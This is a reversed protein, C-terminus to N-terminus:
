EIKNEKPVASSIDLIKAACKNECQKVSVDKNYISIDGPKGCIDCLMEEKFYNLPHSYADIWDTQPSTHNCIPCECTDGQRYTLVVPEITLTSLGKYIAEPDNTTLGEINVHGLGVNKSLVNRFLYLSKTNELNVYKTVFAQGCNPCRFGKSTRPLRAKKLLSESVEMLDGDIKIAPNSTPEDKTLEQTLKLPRPCESGILIAVLDKLESAEYGESEIKLDKYELKLKKPLISTIEPLNNGYSFICSENELNKKLTKNYVKKM